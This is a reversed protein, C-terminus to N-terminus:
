RQGGNMPGKPSGHIPRFLPSDDVVKGLGRLASGSPSYVAMNRGAEDGGYLLRHPPPVERAIEEMSELTPFPM